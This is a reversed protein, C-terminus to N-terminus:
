QFVIKRTLTNGINDTLVLLYMGAENDFGRTIQGTGIRENNLVRGNMDILSYYVTSSTSRNKFTIQNGNQIIKIANELSKEGIGLGEGIVLDGAVESCGIENNLTLYIFWRM